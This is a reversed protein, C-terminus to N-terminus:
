LFSVQYFVTGHPVFTIHHAPLQSYSKNLIVWRQLTPIRDTPEAESRSNKLSVDPYCLAHFLEIIILNM